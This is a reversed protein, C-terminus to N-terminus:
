AEQFSLDFQYFAGVHYLPDKTTANIFLTYEGATLLVQQPLPPDSIVPGMPAAM